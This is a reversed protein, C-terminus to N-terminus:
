FVVEELYHRGVGFQKKLRVIEAEIKEVDVKGDHKIATIMLNKGTHETSIFEFVNTKYGAKKLILARITDTIIEAQREKLIGFQYVSSLESNDEILDKRVQKHCCPSCIILKANAAIGKAIADDTATDCAHLAILVDVEGIDSQEISGEEFFLQEFGVDQAIGNCIDILNPRLEIGRMIVNQGLKNKLYDYLAFTLYGKGSGMDVIQMPDLKALSPNNRLIGDIIEVYKNIQKFKDGKDKQINGKKNLVGLHVLYDTKSLLTKKQKDHSRTAEVETKQKQVKLKFNKGPLREVVIHKETTFLNAIEFDSQILQVILDSGESVGYNKTIDKTSHRYVFSFHRKDKIITMRIIVKKVEATKDSPKSLTLRAFSDERVCTYLEKILVELQDM